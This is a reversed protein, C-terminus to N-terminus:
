TDLRIESNYKKLKLCARLLAHLINIKVILTM